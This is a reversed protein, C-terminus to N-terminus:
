AQVPDPRGMRKLFRVHSRLARWLSPHTHHPVGSEACVGSVVRALEPYHIHCVRPFLHHEVQFNLGGLYWSLFRSRPAFDATTALQHEAWSRQMREQGEPRKVIEAEEVCHALQFVTGITTGVVLAVFGYIALVQWWSHLLLPIVWTWGAFLLKAGLLWALDWGKPREIRHGAARGRIVDRLDDIWAWKPPFFAYLLWVYLHQFRHFWYRPQGPALRLFPEARLDDDVGEVNTYHHHFINHKYNWIYSSGGVLDLARATLRNGLKKRSFAGHGGDHQVNFGIGAVALGLSTAALLAQWWNAVVFVLVVWSAVAWTVIAATKLWMRGGGHRSLGRSDFYERVADNLRDRLSTHPPFKVPATRGAGSDAM